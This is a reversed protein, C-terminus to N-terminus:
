KEPGCEPYPSQPPPRFIYNGLFVEDGVNISGDANADGEAHCDPLCGITNGPPNDCQDSRFILNGLFVEDGINCSGDNNADGPTDCCGGGSLFDQWFGHNINNTGYTGTGVATQAVTGSLKYSASTGNMSGGGSIVQWNIEEGSKPDATAAVAKQETDVATDADTSNDPVVVPEAAPTSIKDTKNSANILNAAPLLTLFLVGILGIHFKRM